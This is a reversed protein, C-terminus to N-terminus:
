KTGADKKDEPKKTLATVLQQSLVLINDLKLNILQENTVFQIKDEQEKKMM